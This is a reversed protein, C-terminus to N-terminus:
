DSKFATLRDRRTKKLDEEILSLPRHLLLQVVKHFLSYVQM